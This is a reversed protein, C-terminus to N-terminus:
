PLDTPDVEAEDDAEEAEAEAEAKAENQRQIAQFIEFPSFEIASPPKKVGAKELVLSLVCAIADADGQFFLSVFGMYTGYEKGYLQRFSRLKTVTIDRPSFEHETVEGTAGNRYPIVCIVDSIAAM